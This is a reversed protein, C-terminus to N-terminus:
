LQAYQSPAVLMYRWVLLCAYNLGIGIQFILLNAPKLSLSHSHSCSLLWCVSVCLRNERKVLLFGIVIRSADPIQQWLFNGSFFWVFKLVQYFPLWCNTSKIQPFWVSFVIFTILNMRIELKNNILWLISLFVLFCIQDIQLHPWKLILPDHTLNKPISMINELNCTLRSLHNNFFFFYVQSTSM